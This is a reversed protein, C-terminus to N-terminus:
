GTISNPVGRCTVGPGSSPILLEYPSNRAGCRNRLSIDSNKQEIKKDIRRIEMSFRYFAKLIEPDGSWTSLDKRMGLYEEDPDHEKPMLQQMLPPRTPVYGNYPYQGFNLAAHQTSALWIITTLISTLNEPTTLKPWWSAHRLDAHGVNISENYWAQLETDSCVASPDQYYYNM